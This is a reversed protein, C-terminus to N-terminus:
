LSELFGLVFQVTKEIEMWHILHTVGPLDVRTCDGIAGAMRTAEAPPLMGGAAEDACLLLTPCRIGRLAAAFDIGELLRGELLPDFVAPDVERLCRAAFRISAADRIDGVRVTGKGGPLAITFDALVRAVEQVSLDKGALKQLGVFMPGYATHGVHAVWEPGPPDELVIARVRQPAEAAVRAATLAGLSHGCVVVPENLHGNIYGVADAVYDDLLYHGPARASQGHGRLDLGHIQWRQSLAPLLPAWDQWRRGIGHLLLLPPGASDSVAVNLSQGNVNVSREVLM